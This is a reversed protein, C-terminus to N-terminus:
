PWNSSVMVFDDGPKTINFITKNLCPTFCYLEILVRCKFMIVAFLKFTMAFEAM